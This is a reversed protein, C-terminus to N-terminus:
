PRRGCRAAIRHKRQQNEGEAESKHIKRQISAKRAAKRKGNPHERSRREDIQAPRQM